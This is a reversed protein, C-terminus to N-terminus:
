GGGGKARGVGCAGLESKGNTLGSCSDIQAIPLMPEDCINSEQSIFLGQLARSRTHNETSQPLSFFLFM